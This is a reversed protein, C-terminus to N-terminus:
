KASCNTVCSRDLEYLHYDEIPNIAGTFSQIKTLCLRKSEEDRIFYNTILNVPNESSCRAVRLNNRLFDESSRLYRGTYPLLVYNRIVMDTLMSKDGMPVARSVGDPFVIKRDSYALWSSTCFPVDGVLTLPGKGSLYEAVKPGSSYPRNIDTIYMVSGSYAQLTLIFTFLIGGSRDGIWLACILIVMVQGLHSLNFGSFAYVVLLTIVVLWSYVLLSFGFVEHKLYRYLLVFGPLIVVLFIQPSLHLDSIMTHEWWNVPSLLLFLGQFTFAISQFLRQPFYETLRLIGGFDYDIPNMLWASLILSLFVPVGYLLLKRISFKGTGADALMRLLFLPALFFGFVHIISLFFILVVWYARLEKRKEYSASLLFLIFLELTYPRAMVGYQYLFYANIAMLTKQGRTFPSRFVLVGFALFAFLGSVFKMSEPPLHFWNLIKLLLYWGFPHFEVRLYAALEALNLERAILWPRVEDTRFEHNMLGILVLLCYLLFIALEPGKRPFFRQLM